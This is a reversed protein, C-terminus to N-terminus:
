PVEVGVGATLPVTRQLEGTSRTQPPRPDKEEAYLEEATPETRQMAALNLAYTLALPITCDLEVALRKLYRHDSSRIRITRFDEHKLM